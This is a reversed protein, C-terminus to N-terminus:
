ATKKGDDIFVHVTEGTGDDYCSLQVPIAIAETANFTMSELTTIQGRCVFIIIKADGDKMRFAWSQEPALHAGMKIHLQEGHTTTAAVKTVYDNGLAQKWSAEDMQILSWSITNDYTDIVKRVVNRGWERLETVSMDSSLELGDESVYGSSMMSGILTEAADFTTPISNGSVISGTYIAGTTAQQDPSGVLVKAANLAM